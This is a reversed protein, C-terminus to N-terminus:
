FNQLIWLFVDAGSDENIFNYSLPRLGVVKDFFFSRCLHFNEFNQLVGKKVSCSHVVAETYIMYIQIYRSIVAM